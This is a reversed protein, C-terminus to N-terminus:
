VVGEGSSVSAFTSFCDQFTSKRRACKLLSWLHIQGVRMSRSAQFIIDSEQDYEKCLVMGWVEHSRVVFARDFTRM